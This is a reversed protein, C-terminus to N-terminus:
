SWMPNKSRSVKFINEGTSKLKAKIQIVMGPNFGRSHRDLFAEAEAINQLAQDWKVQEWIAGVDVKAAKYVGLSGTVISIAAGGGGAAAGVAQAAGAQTAAMLGRTMGEKAGIAGGGKLLEKGAIAARGHQVGSEHRANELGREAVARAAGVGVGVAASSAGIAIAGAAMPIAALGGTAVIGAIIIGGAVMGLAIQAGSLAGLRNRWKTVDQENKEFLDILDDVKQCWSAIEGFREIQLSAPMSTVGRGRSRGEIAGFHDERETISALQSVPASPQDFRSLIEVGAESTNLASSSILPTSADTWGGMFDRGYWGARRTSGGGVGPNWYRMERTEDGQQYLKKAAWYGNSAVKGPLAAVRREAGVRPPAAVAAARAQAIQRPNGSVAPLGSGGSSTIFPVRRAAVRRHGPRSPTM